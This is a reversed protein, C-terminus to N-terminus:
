CGKERQRKLQHCYVSAGAALIGQTIGVFLGMAVERLDHLPTTAVVWLLSLLIGLGGLTLPIRSPNLRSRRLMRGVLYLVPVLVLLEPRIFDQTQM